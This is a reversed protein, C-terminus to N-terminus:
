PASRAPTWRSSVPSIGNPTASWSFDQLRTSMMAASGSPRGSACAPWQWCGSSRATPPPGCRHLWLAPPQWSAPSRTRASCTPLPGSIAAPSCTLQPCRPAPISPQWTLRSAARLRSGPETGTRAPARRSQRGPWRSGPPSRARGPKKWTPSSSPSCGPIVTLSSGSRGASASTTRRRRACGPEHQVGQGAALSWACRLRASRPTSRRSRRGGSACCPVSRSCHAALECCRPRPPIGCGTPGSM